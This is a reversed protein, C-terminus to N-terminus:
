TRWLCHMWKKGAGPASQERPGARLVGQRCSNFSSLQWSLVDSISYKVCGTNKKWSNDGQERGGEWGFGAIWGGMCIYAHIFSESGEACTFWGIWHEISNSSLYDM